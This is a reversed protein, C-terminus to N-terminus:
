GVKETEKSKDPSKKELLHILHFCKYKNKRDYKKCKILLLNKTLIKGLISKSSSIFFSTFTLLIVCVQKIVKLLIM